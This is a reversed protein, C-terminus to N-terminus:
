RLPYAGRLCCYRMAVRPVPGQCEPCIKEGAPQERPPPFIQRYMRYYFYQEKDRLRVGDEREILTRAAEFEADSISETAFGALATSGSGYEIPTKVRWTIEAPLVDAFARRLIVKGFRSGEHEGVLDAADLTLAFARVAEDLYPLDVNIGLSPAIKRSTFYMVENLYRIYAMLQELPMNFMYSYGAFLEDSADGTFVCRLDAARAQELGVYTVISNRLEMPDFTGLVGILEPMRNMLDRRTPRLIKLDFGLLAAISQAFQEDPAPADSVAISVARLQRGQSAAIAAVIRTDLGGSLLIGDAQSSSVAATLLDRLEAARNAREDSAALSVAANTHSM